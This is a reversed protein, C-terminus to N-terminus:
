VILTVISDCVGVEAGLWGVLWGAGAAVGQVVIVM